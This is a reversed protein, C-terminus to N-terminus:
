EEEEEENMKVRKRKQLSLPTVPQDRKTEIEDTSDFAKAYVLRIPRPKPRFEFYDKQCHKVIVTKWRKKFFNETVIVDGL